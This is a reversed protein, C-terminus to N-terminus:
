TDKKTGSHVSQIVLLYQEYFSICCSAVTQKVARTGRLLDTVERVPLIGEKVIKPSKMSCALGDGSWMDTMLCAAVICVRWEVSVSYGYCWVSYDRVDRM